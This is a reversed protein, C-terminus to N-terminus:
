YKKGTRKYKYPQQEINDKENLLRRETPNLKNIFNM